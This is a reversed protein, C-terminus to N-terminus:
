LGLSVTLWNRQLWANWWAQMSFHIDFPPAPQGIRQSGGLTTHYTVRLHSSLQSSRKSTTGVIQHTIQAQGKKYYVCVILLIRAYLM